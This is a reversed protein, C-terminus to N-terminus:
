SRKQASSLPLPSRTSVPSNPASICTSSTLSPGTVRIRSRDAHDMVRQDERGARGPPVLQEGHQPNRVPHFRGVDLLDKFLELKAVLDGAQDVAIHEAAQDLLEKSKAQIQSMNEAFTSIQTSIILAIGAIVVVLILIVVLSLTM